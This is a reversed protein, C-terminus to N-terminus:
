HCAIDAAKFKLAQIALIIAQQWDIYDGIKDAVMRVEDPALKRDLEEEATEQIDDVNISYVIDRSAM